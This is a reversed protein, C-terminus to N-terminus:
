KLAAEVAARLGSLPVQPAGEHAQAMALVTAPDLATLDDWGYESNQARSLRHLGALLDLPASMFTPHTHSPVSLLAVLAHSLDVGKESVLIRYTAQAEHADPHWWPPMYRRAPESHPDFDDGTRITLTGCCTARDGEFTLSGGVGLVPPHTDRLRLGLPDTLGLLRDVVLRHSDGESFTVVAVGSAAGQPRSVTTLARTRSAQDDGARLHAVAM